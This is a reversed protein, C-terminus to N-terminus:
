KGALGTNVRQVLAALDSDSRVKTNDQMEAAALAAHRSAVAALLSNRSPKVPVCTGDAWRLFYQTKTQFAHAPANGEYSSGVRTKLIIKQQFKLLQLESTASINEAYGVAVDPVLGGPLREFRRAEPQGQPGMATLTFARLQEPALIISDGQPRLVRLEQNVIDFKLVAPVPKGNAGLTVDGKAWGPVLFPTGLVPRLREDFALVDYGNTGV